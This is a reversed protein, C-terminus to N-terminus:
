KHVRGPVLREDVIQSGLPRVLDVVLSIVEDVAVPEPSLSLQGTEIRAIDLVENILELV